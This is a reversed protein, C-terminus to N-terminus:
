CIYFYTYIYSHAILLFSLFICFFHVCNCSIDRFKLYSSSICYKSHQIENNLGKMGASWFLYRHLCHLDQHSLENPAISNAM